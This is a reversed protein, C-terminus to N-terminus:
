SNKGIADRNQGRKAIKCVSGGMGLGQRRLKQTAETLGGGAQYIRGGMASPKRGKFDKRKVGSPDKEFHPLDFCFFSAFRLYGFHTGSALALAIDSPCLLDATFLFLATACPTPPLGVLTLVNAFLVLAM